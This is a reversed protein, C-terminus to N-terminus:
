KINHATTLVIGESILSAGCVYERQIVSKNNRISDTAKFVMCMHPWEGAVTQTKLEPGVIRIDILGFENHKGCEPIFPTKTGENGDPM